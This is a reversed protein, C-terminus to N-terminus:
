KSPNEAIYKEFKAKEPHDPVKELFMKYEAAARDKLGAANYLMALRLHIETKDQPALELAKNLHVVAKSGKKSQLYAEGLYHHAEASEPSAEVAKSLSEVAPDFKKQSLQVKGLNILAPLFDSKLSVSMGFANESEEFKEEKFLLSGLESWAVFDAADKEVIQKFLKVANAPSKEKSASIAKDFTKQNEESRSYANRLAIVENRETTKREINSWVLFVDKRNPMPPPTLTGIPYSGIEQNDVEVILTVGNRPVNNFSYAGRNQVRQRAVLVGNAMVAVSLVPAKNQDTMGQIEVTGSLRADQGNGPNTGPRAGIYTPLGSSQRAEDDQAAINSISLLALISIISLKFLIKM